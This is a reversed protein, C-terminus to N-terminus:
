VAGVLQERKALRTLVFVWFAGVGLWLGIIAYRVLTFVDGSPLLPKIALRLSMVVALGVIVKVVQKWL